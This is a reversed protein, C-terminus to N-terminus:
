VRHQHPLLAGPRRLHHDQIGHWSRVLHQNALQGMPVNGRTSRPGVYWIFFYYAYILKFLGGWFRWFMSHGFSRLGCAGFIYSSAKLRRGDDDDDDDEADGVAPQEEEDSVRIMQDHVQLVLSRARTSYHHTTSRQRVRSSGGGGAAEDKESDLVLPRLLPEEDLPSPELPRIM